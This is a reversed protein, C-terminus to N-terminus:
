EWNKPSWHEKGLKLRRKLDELTKSVLAVDDAYLLKEPFGLWVETSLARLLVGVFLLPCIVLGQHLGEQVPFDDSFMEFM